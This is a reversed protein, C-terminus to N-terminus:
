EVKRLWVSQLDCVRDAPRNLAKVTIRVRGKELDIPGFELPAFTQTYRRKKQRSPRLVPRPEHARDISGQVSSGGATIRLKTGVAQAPCAIMATVQYRGAAVVDVEWWISDAPDTWGTLWDHAFGHQNYWRIRGTFVAEPAPLEVAPRQRYGVPIPPRVIPVRTVDAFWDRYARSLREVVQPNAATVDKAQGPDAAM